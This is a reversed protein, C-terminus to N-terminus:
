MFGRFLRILSYMLVGCCISLENGEGSCARSNTSFQRWFKLGLMLVIGFGELSLLKLALLASCFNIFFELLGWIYPKGAM